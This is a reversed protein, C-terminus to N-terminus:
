WLPVFFVFSFSISSLGVCICKTNKLNSRRQTSQAKTTFSRGERRYLGDQRIQGVFRGGLPERGRCPGRRQRAPEVDNWRIGANGDEEVGADRRQSGHCGREILKVGDVHRRDFRPPVLQRATIFHVEVQRTDRFVRTQRGIIHDMGVGRRLVSDVRDAKTRAKRVQAIQRGLQVADRSQRRRPNSDLGAADAQGAPLGADIWQFPGASPVDDAPRRQDKDVQGITVERQPDAVPHPKSSDIIDFETASGALPQSSYDNRGAELFEFRGAKGSERVALALRSIM